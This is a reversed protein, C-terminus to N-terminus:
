FLRYGNKGAWFASHSIVEQDRSVCLVGYSNRRGQAFHDAARPPFHPEAPNLLKFSLLIDQSAKLDRSSQVEEIRQLFMTRRMFHDYASALDGDYGLNRLFGRLKQAATFLFAPVGSFPTGRLHDFCFDTQPIETTLRSIATTYVVAIEM